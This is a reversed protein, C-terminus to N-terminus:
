YSRVSVILTASESRSDSDVRPALPGGNKGSATLRLRFPRLEWGGSGAVLNGHRCRALGAAACRFLGQTGEGGQEGDSRPAEERGAGADGGAPRASRVNTGGRGSVDAIPATSPPASTIKRATRPPTKPGSDPGAQRSRRRPAAAEPDPAQTHPELAAAVEAPKQYRERLGKAMMRTLITVVEDPVEPRFMHIPYPDHTLQWQLKKAPTGQDGYPPRGTLAFYLTGGLSFIDARIDVRHSDQIQEAALYDPTGIVGKTLVEETEASEGIFRALGLDLIKVTDAADVILNGPKIDRHILGAEHAHQLGLAAQRIFACARHVELPGEAQVVEHLTKGDVYEMVLYHLKGDLGIDFTRVINPHDLAASARAERQFRKLSEEDSASSPPLLKM